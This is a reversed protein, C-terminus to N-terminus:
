KVFFGGNRKEITFNTNYSDKVLNNLVKQLSEVKIGNLEASKGISGGSVQGNDAVVVVTQWYAYSKSEAVGEKVTLNHKISYSVPFSALKLSTVRCVVDKTSNKFWANNAAYQNVLEVAQANDIPLNDLTTLGDSNVEVYNEAADAKEISVSQTVWDFTSPLYGEVVYTTCTNAEPTPTPTPDPTPTPTPTPDPDPDDDGCATFGVFAFLMAFAMLFSYFVSKKMINRTQKLFPLTAALQWM